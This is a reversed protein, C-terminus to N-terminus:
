KTNCESDTSLYESTLNIAILEIDKLKQRRNQRSCHEKDIIVKLVKLIKEHNTKFNKM